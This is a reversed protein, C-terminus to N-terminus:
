LPQARDLDPSHGVNTLVGDPVSEVEVGLAAAVTADFNALDVYTRDTAVSVLLRGTPALRV